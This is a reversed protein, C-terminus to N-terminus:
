GIWGGVRYSELLHKASMPIENVINGINVPQRNEHLHALTLYVAQLLAPSIEDASALGADFTVEVADPREALDPWSETSKLVILGPTPGTVVHYADTSLTAQDAGSAPYYKVSGVSALPSRELYIADNRWGPYYSYPRYAECPWSDMTLKWTQTLLARGTFDEVTRRAVSILREVDAQGDDSDVRLYAAADAYVIPESAPEVTCVLSKM